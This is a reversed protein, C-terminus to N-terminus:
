GLAASVRRRLEPLVEAEFWPNKRMWITSRWSPHPMPFLGEPADAYDRVMDTMSRKPKSPLYRRQAHHGVLLTLAINPLAARLPAHWLPACEPRPPNDGSAGTGPFCFGMPMLAVKQADYFDADKIQTWDRLRAGSADDWPVGSEQVRTGPAQGIILIRARTGAQVIPRPPCPLHAACVDCARIRVLMDELTETVM